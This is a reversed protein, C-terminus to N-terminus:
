NNNLNASLANAASIAALRTNAQAVWPTFVNQAAEPLTALEAVADNLNGNRLAAEARSLVADADEGDQPTVSRAGLQSKFFSVLRNEEASESTRASALASRALEPYTSQLEALSPAGSDAVAELEAPATEGTATSLDVLAARFPTGSDLASIVRTLAARALAQQATQKANAEMASAEERQAAVSAKLEELEREYAEIASSPLAQTIPRKELEIIRTDLGALAGALDDVRGNLGAASATLGEISATLTESGSSSSSLSAALEAQAAKLAEIESAQADITAELAPVREDAQPMLPGVYQSAFFGAGAAVVGGLFVPVFGSRKSPEVAPPQPEPPMSETTEAVEEPELEEVPEDATVTQDEESVEEASTEAKAETADLEPESDTADKSPADADPATEEVIEADIVDESVDPTEDTKQDTSTDSKKAKAM